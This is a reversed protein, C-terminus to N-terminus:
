RGSEERKEGRVAVEQQHREFEQVTPRSCKESCYIVNPHEEKRIKRGCRVCQREAVM